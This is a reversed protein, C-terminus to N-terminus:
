DIVRNGVGLDVDSNGLTTMGRKSPVGNIVYLCANYITFYKITTKVLKVKLFFKKGTYRNAM